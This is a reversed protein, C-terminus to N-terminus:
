LEVEETNVVKKENEAVMLTVGLADLLTEYMEDHLETWRGEGYVKLLRDILHSAGSLVSAEHSTM